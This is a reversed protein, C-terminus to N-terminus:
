ELDDLGEGEGEGGEGQQQNAKDRFSGVAALIEVLADIDVSPSFSGGGSSHNNSFEAAM